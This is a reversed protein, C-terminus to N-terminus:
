GCPRLRGLLCHALSADLHSFIADALSLLDPVEEPDQFDPPLPRIICGKPVKMAIECSCQLSGSSHVMTAPESHTHSKSLIVCCWLMLALTSEM